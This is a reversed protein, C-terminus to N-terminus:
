LQERHIPTTQLSEGSPQTDAPPADTAPEDLLENLTIRSVHRAPVPSQRRAPSLAASVGWQLARDRLLLGRPQDTMALQLWPHATSGPVAGSAVETRDPQAPMSPKPAPVPAPVARDVYVVERVVQPRELRSAFMAGAAAAALVAAAAATTRWRFLSRSAAARGAEFLMADRDIGRPPAPRLGRLAGALEREAPTLGADDAEPRNTDDTYM